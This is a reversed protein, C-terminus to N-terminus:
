PIFQIHPQDGSILSLQLHILHVRQVRVGSTRVTEYVHTNLPSVGGGGGGGGGVSSSPEIALVDLARRLRM